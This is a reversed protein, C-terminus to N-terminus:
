PVGLADNVLTQMDSTIQQYELADITGAVRETQWIMFVPIFWVLSVLRRPLSEADHLELKVLRLTKRCRAYAARDFHGQRLKGFFGDELDWEAELLAILEDNSM